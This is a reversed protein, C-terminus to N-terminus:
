LPPETMLTAWLVQMLICQRILSLLANNLYSTYHQQSQWQTPVIIEAQMKCEKLSMHVKLKERKWVVKQM